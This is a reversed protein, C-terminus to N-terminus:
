EKKIWPSFYVKNHMWVKYFLVIVIAIFDWTMIYVFLDQQFNSRYVSWDGFIIAWIFMITLLIDLSALALFSSKKLPQAETKSFAELPFIIFGGFMLGFLYLSSIWWPKKDNLALIFFYLPFIGLSNFIFWQSPDLNNAFVQNLFTSPQSWLSTIASLIILAAWIILIVHKRM